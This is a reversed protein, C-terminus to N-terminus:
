RGYFVGGKEYDPNTWILDDGCYMKKIGEMYRMIKPPSCDWEVTIFGEEDVEGLM